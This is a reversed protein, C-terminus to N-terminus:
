NRPKPPQAPTGFSWRWHAAMTRILTSSQFGIPNEDAFAITTLCALLLAGFATKLTTEEKILRIIPDILVPM